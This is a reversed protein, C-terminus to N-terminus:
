QITCKCKYEEHCLIGDYYWQKRGNPYVIAPLGNHRNLLGNIYWEKTGDSRIISPKDNERYLINDKLWCKTGSKYIIAPENDESNLKGNKFNYSNNNINHIGNCLIKNNDTSEMEIYIINSLLPYYIVNNDINFCYIYRQEKEKKFSQLSNM